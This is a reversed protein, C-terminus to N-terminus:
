RRKSKARNEEAKAMQNEVRNATNTITTLVKYDRAGLSRVYELTWGPFEKLLFYEQVERPPSVVKNGRVLNAM